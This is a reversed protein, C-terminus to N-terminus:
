KAVAVRWVGIAALIDWDGRTVAGHFANVPGQIEFSKDTTPVGFPGYVQKNTTLTLSAINIARGPVLDGPASTVNSGSIKTFYEGPDRDISATALPSM